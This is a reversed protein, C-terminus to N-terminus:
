ASVQAANEANIQGAYRNAIVVAMGASYGHGLMKVAYDAVDTAAEPALGLRNAGRWALERVVSQRVAAARVAMDAKSRVLKSVM